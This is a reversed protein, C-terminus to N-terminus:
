IFKVKLLFTESFYLNNSEDKKNHMEDNEFFNSRYLVVSNKFSKNLDNFIKINAIGFESKIYDPVRKHFNGLLILQEFNKLNGANEIIYSLAAAVCIQNFPLPLLQEFGLGRLRCALLYTEIRDRKKFLRIKIAVSMRIAIFQNIAKRYIESQHQALQQSVSGLLAELGGRYSDWMFEVQEIGEQSRKGVPHDVLSFYFCQNAIYIDSCSLWEKAITFFDFAIKPRTVPSLKNLLETRFIGIEPFIHHKLIAELFISFSGRKFSLGNPISFFQTPNEDDINGIKWPAYYAGVDPMLSLEFISSNLVSLDLLDDDAVYISFEGIAQKLVFDYNQIVSLKKIQKFYRIPLKSSYKKVIDETLDSSANDSIVIEYNFELIHINKSLNSLLYNLFDAREFTPICISLKLGKEPM